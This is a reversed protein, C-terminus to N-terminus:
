RRGAARGRGVTVAPVLQGERITRGDGDAQEDTGVAGPRLDARQQGVGFGLIDARREDLGVQVVGIFPVGRRGLRDAATGQEGDRRALPDEPVPFGVADQVGVDSEGLRRLPDGAELGGVGGRHCGLDSRLEGSPGRFEGCKDGVTVSGGDKARDIGQRDAVPPVPDRADGEKAVGGV